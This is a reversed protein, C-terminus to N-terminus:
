AVVGFGDVAAELDPLPRRCIEHAEDAPLGFMRLLDEAVRDTARADDWEPHDHLMRGLCLEAGAVIVLSLEPDRVNFRGAREAAEIDRLARPAIGRDAGVLSLGNSLLVKGLEPRCRHLRGALRFGQTFVHAPDDLDTTLGDLLEGYADLADEIVTRYLREKSEFHNYFSGVGVDAARTIELISANVNGSAIFAGAARILAARTRARRRALRGPTGETM